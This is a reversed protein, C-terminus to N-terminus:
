SGGGPFTRTFVKGETDEARVSVQDSSPTYSFRFTPDESISIGGEMAFILKEGQKVEVERVFWAPTYGRTEPDIQLGSFNPHRIQVQAEPRGTAAFSRFRMEGVHAISDATDKTAPASCGGAAKVYAKTMLLAGDSTEAVARVFSYSNVRVRLSLSFDRTGEALTFRGAMPAPNEDVVLTVAKLTRPDGAPLALQITIPVLAADEARGPADLQVIAGADAIAKGPFLDPRISAWTAERSASERNPETAAGQAAEPAQALAPGAGPLVACLALAVLGARGATRSPSRRMM